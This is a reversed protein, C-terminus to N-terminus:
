KKRKTATSKAKGSSAAKRKQGTQEEGDDDDEDDEEEEEDEHPTQAKAKGSRKSAGKVKRVEGPIIPREPDEECAPCFWEGDPIADLPPDLCKLHYPHDCKDCELPSDNEGHDKNCVVCHEPADLEEPHRPLDSFKDNPEALFLSTNQAGAVQFVNIGILPQNRTPKTASKPEDPGLGLEGNAAGQGFAITMISGDEDPALAFHTVGGCSVSTVKCGMIDQIFRFSSYPQGSSGDGTNKWKGAMWYMSQKDIVVSNSPGAYVHAGMTIENPGAFQPVPKPILVDQQNGLGLRCYGNYGWVWVNGTDDLAISHQQGCAIEVIKKDDLGKVPIPDWEADFVTKGGTVIHEGTKGHGLQGKEASGFSFVRGTDTVVISFNIGAAAKVVKLKVGDLKPGNVLKFSTIEPCEPHGCQGMNNAGASWLQGDSGVLLTHSRGCAADVFTTGNPAGLKWHTVNTEVLCGLQAMQLLSRLIHPELLDPGVPEEQGKKNTAGKRGLRPWDTGGCILVRGWRPGSSSNANNSSSEPKAAM